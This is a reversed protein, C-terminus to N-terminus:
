LIKRAVLIRTKLASIVFSPTIKIIKFVLVWNFHFHQIIIRILASRFENFVANLILMHWAKIVIKEDVKCSEIEDYKFYNEHRLKLMDLLHFENKLYFHFGREIYNQKNNVIVNWGDVLLNYYLGYEAAWVFTEDFLYPDGLPSLRHFILCSPPPCWNFLKLENLKEQSTFREYDNRVQTLKSGAIYIGIDDRDKLINRADALHQPHYFDDGECIAVFRGSAYKLPSNWGQIENKKTGEQIFKIRIDTVLKISDLIVDISDDTSGNDVVILEFDRCSQTLISQLVQKISKERNKVEVCVSFFIDKQNNRSLNKLISDM